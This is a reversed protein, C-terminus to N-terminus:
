SNEEIEGGETWEPDRSVKVRYIRRRDAREVVFQVGNKRVVVGVAPVRGLTTFILGAITEYDDGDLEADVVDELVDVRLLGSAMWTGDGLDVLTAEEDEHEDSIEGV